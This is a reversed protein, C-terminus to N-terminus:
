IVLQPQPKNTFFQAVRIDVLCDVQYNRLKIRACFQKFYFGDKLFM